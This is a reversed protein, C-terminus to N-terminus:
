SRRCGRRASSTSRSSRRRAGPSRRASSLDVGAEVMWGVQEAFMARVAARGAEDPAFANTNCINGAALTGTDRAVKTAIELAVRNLPELLHEKDIM